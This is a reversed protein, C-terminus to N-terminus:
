NAARYIVVGEFSTTNGIDATSLRTTNSGAAASNGELDAGAGNPGLRALLAIWNTALSAFRLVSFGNLDTTNESAFPLGQLQVDGTITGKASLTVAFQACILKGIKVYRGVQKSYSQGSTGGSGGIVPTWSGEEYDDLTNADASANQTAPFKVQGGTLNFPGTLIDTEIAAVEDQLDNVHSAAIISSPGDTKTSFAKISGPYSAPM